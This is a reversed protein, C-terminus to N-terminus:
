MNSPYIVVKRNPDKGESETSINSNSQLFSHIIKREAPNMPELVAKTNTRIVKEALRDALSELTKQRRERYNEADLIVRVYESTHRNLVVNTLYQLADLTQGRRGILKGLNSGSVQFFYHRDTNSISIETELGMEDLVNYLFQKATDLTDRDVSFSESTNGASIHTSDDLPWVEVVADKSGIGLFGKSPEKLVEIHAQHESIQLQELASRIAEEVTKAEVTLKSM